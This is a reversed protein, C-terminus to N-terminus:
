RREWVGLMVLTPHAILALGSRSQVQDCALRATRSRRACDSHGHGSDRLRPVGPEGGHRSTWCMTSPQARTAWVERAARGSSGAESQIAVALNAQDLRALEVRTSRMALHVLDVHRQAKRSAGELTRNLRVLRGRHRVLMSTRAADGVSAAVYAM